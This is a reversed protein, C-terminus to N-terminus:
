GDEAARKARDAEDAALHSVVIAYISMFAVWLISDHWVLVTPVALAAWVLAAALHPRSRIRRTV